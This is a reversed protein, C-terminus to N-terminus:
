FQEEILDAIVFFPVGCDNLIPLRFMLPMDSTKEKLAPYTNMIAETVKVSRGSNFPFGAWDRVVPPLLSTAGLYSAARYTTEDGSISPLEEWPKRQDEPLSQLHIECLGGLCCHGDPKKLTRRIQKNEPNRLWALWLAKVEPVMKPGANNNYLDGAFPSDLSETIEAVSTALAPNDSNSM